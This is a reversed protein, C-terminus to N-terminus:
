TTKSDTMALLTLSSAIWSPKSSPGQIAERLKYEPKGFALGPHECHRTL